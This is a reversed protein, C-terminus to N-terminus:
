PAAKLFHHAIEVVVVIVVAWAIANAFAPGSAEIFSKAFSSGADRWKM